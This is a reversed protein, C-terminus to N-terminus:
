ELKIDCQNRTIKTIPENTDKFPKRLLNEFHLKWLHICEEQSAAKLKDRATNKRKSVENVM